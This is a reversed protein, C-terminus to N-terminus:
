ADLALLRADFDDESVVTLKKGHESLYKQAWGLTKAASANRHERGFVVVLKAFEDSDSLGGSKGAIEFTRSRIRSVDLYDFAVPEIAVLKGDKERRFGHDFEVENAVSILQFRAALGEVRRIKDFITNWVDDDSRGQSVPSEIRSSPVLRKFLRQVEERLNETAVYKSTTVTLSAGSDPWISRLLQEATEFHQPFASILRGESKRNLAELSSKLTRLSRRYGKSDFDDYLASLVRSRPEYQIEARPESPDYALVGINIAEDLSRDHRYQLISYTVANM